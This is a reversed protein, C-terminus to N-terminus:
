YPLGKVVVEVVSTRAKRAWEGLLAANPRRRDAFSLKFLGWLRKCSRLGELQMVGPGEGGSVIIFGVRVTQLKKPWPLSYAHTVVPEHARLVSCAFM